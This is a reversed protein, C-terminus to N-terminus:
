LLSLSGTKRGTTKSALPQNVLSIILVYCQEYNVSIFLTGAINHWVPWGILWRSIDLHFYWNEHLWQLWADQAWGTKLLIFSESSHHTISYLLRPTFGIHNSLSVPFKARSSSGLIGGFWFFFRDVLPGGKPKSPCQMTLLFLLVWFIAWYCAMLFISLCRKM